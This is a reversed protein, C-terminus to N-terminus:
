SDMLPGGWNRNLFPQAPALKVDGTRPRSWLTQNILQLEDAMGWFTRSCEPVTIPSQNPGPDPMPFSLGRPHRPGRHEWEPNHARSYESRLRSASRSTM